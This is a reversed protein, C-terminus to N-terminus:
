PKVVERYLAEVNRAIAGYAYRELAIERAANALAQRRFEDRELEIIARAIGLAPAEDSSLPVTIGAEYGIARGTADGEICITPLRTLMAQLVITALGHHFTPYLM